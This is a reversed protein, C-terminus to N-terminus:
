GRGTLSSELWGGLVVGGRVGPVCVPPALVPVSGTVAVTSAALAGAARLSGVVFHGRGPQSALKM